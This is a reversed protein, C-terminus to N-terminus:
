AKSLYFTSDATLTYFFSLLLSPTLLPSFLCPSFSLFALNYTMSYQKVWSRLVGEDVDELGGVV